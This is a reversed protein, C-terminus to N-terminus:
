PSIALLHYLRFFFRTRWNGLAMAQRLSLGPSVCLTSGIVVSLATRLQSGRIQTRAKSHNRFIEKVAIEAKSRIRQQPM